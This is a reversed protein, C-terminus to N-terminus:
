FPRREWIMLSDTATQLRGLFMLAESSVSTDDKFRLLLVRGGQGSANKGYM